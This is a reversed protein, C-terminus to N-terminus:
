KDQRIYKKWLPVFIIIGSAVVLFLNKFNFGGSLLLTLSLWIWLLALVSFGAIKVPQM